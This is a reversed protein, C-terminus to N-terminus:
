PRIPETVLAEELALTPPTPALPQAVLAGALAAVPPEVPQEPYHPPSATPHALLPPGAPQLAALPHCAPIRTIYTERGRAARAVPHPPPFAVPAVRGAM